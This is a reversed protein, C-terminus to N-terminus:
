KIVVGKVEYVASNYQYVNHGNINSTLQTFSKSVTSGDAAYITLGAPIILYYQKKEDFEILNQNNFTLTFGDISTGILHWGAENTATKLNSTDISAPNEQGVYWYYKSNQSWKAHLDASYNKWITLGSIKQDATLSTIANGVYDNGDKFFWGVFSYGDKKPDSPWTFKNSCYAKKTYKITDGDYFNLTWQLGGTITLDFEKNSSTKYYSYAAPTATYNMKLVAKDATMYYGNGVTISDTNLTKVWDKPIGTCKDYVYSFAITDSDCVNIDCIDVFKFTNNSSKDAAPTSNAKQSVTTTNEVKTLTITLDTECAAYKNDKKTVVHVKVEKSNNTDNWGRAPVEIILGKNDATAALTVTSNNEFGLDLQKNSTSQFYCCNSDFDCDGGKTSISIQFSSASLYKSASYVFEPNILNGSIISLKGDNDISISIVFSNEGVTITESTTTKSLTKVFNQIKNFYSTILTTDLVQTTYSITKNFPDAEIGTIVRAQTNSKVLDSTTDTDTVFLSLNDGVTETKISSGLTYIHQNHYIHPPLANGEASIYEEPTFYIGNPLFSGNDNYPKYGGKGDPEIGVNNYFTVKTGTTVM